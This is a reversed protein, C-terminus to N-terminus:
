GAVPEHLVVGFEELKRKVWKVAGHASEWQPESALMRDLCIDGRFNEPVNTPMGAMFTDDSNVVTEGFHYTELMDGHALAFALKPMDLPESFQKLVTTSLYVVSKNEPPVMCRAMTVEVSNGAFELLEVLAAAVAGRQEVVIHDVAGSYSGNIVLRIFRRAPQQVKEVDFRMWCEPENQVFRGIDIAHGKVDYNIEIREILQGLANTVDATFKRAREAGEVWGEDALKALAPVGREQRITRSSKRASAIFQAFSEHHFHKLM